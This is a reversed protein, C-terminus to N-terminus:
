NKRPNLQASRRLALAAALVAFPLLWIVRGQYRGFVGGFAGAVFANTLLGVVVTALLLAPRTLRRRVAVIFLVIAGLVCLLAIGEHIANVTDLAPRDFAGHAQPTNALSAAVARAVPLGENVWPCRM